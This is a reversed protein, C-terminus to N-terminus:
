NAGLLQSHREKMNMRNISDSDGCAQVDMDAQYNKQDAVNRRNVSNLEIQPHSTKSNTQHVLVVTEFNFYTSIPMPM